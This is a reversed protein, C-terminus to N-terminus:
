EKLRSSIERLRLLQQYHFPLTSSNEIFGFVYMIVSFLMGYELANESAIKISFILLGMGFFWTTFFNIAELDSLKKNWKMLNKFYNKMFFKKDSIKEVQDEFVDNYEKNFQINKNSTLGYVFIILIALFLCGFFILKNLFFLIILTGIIGIFGALIAPFSFELFVVFENLLEVRSNTKSVPFGKEREKEVLETAIEEYIYAYTRTDFFRRGAGVVLSAFGLLGLYILWYYESKLLGNVALGIFLPFLIFIIAELLATLLTFSVKLKFRKFINLLTIDKNNMM